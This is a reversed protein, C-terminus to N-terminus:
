AEARGGQRWGAVPQVGRPASAGGGGDLEFTRVLAALEQGQAALEAAASSSQESSAANGQTVTSMSAVARSVEDIGAAQERTAATLEDVIGSVDGVAGAIQGLREGVLRAAADGDGTLRVSDRILEETQAAAEKSRLALARVEDAVVAFGRGAEGARAAEVAANLALLNTQFAIENIDKIIRSTSEAAARIKGMATAMNAMAGQGEDASSRAIRVSGAARRSSAESERTRASMAELSSSIQEIASAQQSAGAAVAESSSAIEGAASAMQEASARVQTMSAHLAVATANIAVKVRAHDGQYAGEMRARLDRRALREQVAAAERVPGVVADLTANFGAVLKRFDGEHRTPDARVSLDGAVAARALGDADVLLANVADICRNLNDQIASFDGRAQEALRPPVDGRSIRGVCDATARIPRVFADMIANMGALLGHFEPGVSEPRARDGLRGERVALELRAAEGGLGGVARKVSRLVLLGAAALVVFLLANLAITRRVEATAADDVDDLYLGSGVIWGWPEYLRVFSLKRVPDTSGPKPWRYEVFGQGEPAARVTDIMEVFLRKGRPDVHDRLDKGDLEAKIPHMVMRPGLDNIWFYETGEYRISRVLELAARQADGRSMAGAEALAGYRALMGHVTDVVARVKARREEMTRAARADLAALTTALLGALCVAVFGSAIWLRGAITLSRLVRAM